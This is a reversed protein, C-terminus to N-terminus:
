QLAAVLFNEFFRRRRGEVGGLALFDALRNGIGHALDFVPARARDFEQKFVPFEIEDLHVGAQLNLMRHGLHDRPQVEHEFLNADCRARREVKGLFVDHQGAVGDLAPNASFVRLGEPGRGAFDGIPVWRAAKAHTDIAASVLAIRDRRIVVAQDALENDM